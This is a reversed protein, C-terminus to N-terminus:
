ISRDLWIYGRSAGQARGRSPAQNLSTVRHFFNFTVGRRKLVEYIPAFITDGMGANM